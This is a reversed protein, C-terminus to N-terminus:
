TLNLIRHMIVAAEGRSIYGLPNLKGNIPKQIIQSELLLGFAYRSEDSVLSEDSYDNLEAAKGGLRWTKHLGRAVMVAMEQRSIPAEPEFRNDVTEEFIGLTKGLLVQM